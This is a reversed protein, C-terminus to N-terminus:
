ESQLLMKLALNLAKINFSSSHDGSRLKFQVDVKHNLLVQYYNQSKSYHVAVDQKGHVIIVKNSKLLASHEVPNFEPRLGMFIEPWESKQYNRYVNLWANLIYQNTQDTNEEPYLTRGQTSWDTVPKILIINRINSQSYKNLFPAIAGGWSSGVLIINTYNLNVVENTLSDIGTEKGRMFNESELITNVCNKFNFDGSSHCYGIYDPIFLDYNYKQAIPWLVSKGDDGLSPGGKLYIIVSRNSRDSQYLYGVVQKIKVLKINNM